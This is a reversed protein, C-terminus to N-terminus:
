GIQKRRSMLVSTVQAETMGLRVSDVGAVFDKPYPAALLVTRDNSGLFIFLVLIPIIRRM